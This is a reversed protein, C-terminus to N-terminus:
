GASTARPRTPGTPASTDTSTGAMAPVPQGTATFAKSIFPQAAAVKDAPPGDSLFQRYQGVAGSADGEALLMSGLYLHPAYAGPDAGVARQEKQQAHALVSSDRAQVGAEFELWGSESLAEVQTPDQALVQNFLRLAGAADGTSELTEAQALTRRIQAAHSLSVSGTVTQGPLRAGTQAAVVVAAVAAVLALSGAIALASRRKGRWPGRVGLADGTVAADEADADPEVRRGMATDTPEDHDLARLVVAARRTYRDRLVAYDEESLDGAARERELDELSGLLFSREDDLEARTM